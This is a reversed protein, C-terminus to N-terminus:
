QKRGRTQNAFVNEFITSYVRCVQEYREPELEIHVSVYYMFGDDDGIRETKESHLRIIFPLIDEPTDKSKWDKFFTFHPTRLITGIVKCITEASNHLKSMLVIPFMVANRLSPDASPAAVMCLRLVYQNDDEDTEDGESAESFFTAGPYAPIPSVAIDELAWRIPPLDDNGLVHLREADAKLKKMLKDENTM